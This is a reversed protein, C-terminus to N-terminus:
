MSAKQGFMGWLIIFIDIIIIIVVATELVLMRNTQIRSWSVSYISEITELKRRVTRNWEDLAFRRSATEYVRGLFLDGVLKLHSEVRDLIDAIELAVQSLRQMAGTYPFLPARPRALEDYADDLLKDMEADYIRLELLQIIAYEIVDPVDFSAEPDLIFAANWDVLTQDNVRYSLPTKLAEAQEDVSLDKEARLIRALAPGHDRLLAQGDVPRDFAQVMFIAYDEFDGDADPRPKVVAAKIDAYVKRFEAIAADRLVPNETVLGSLEGLGSLPGGLALTFRITVAGFSYVKADVIIDFERTGVTIRRKPLGFLLPPERFQIYPPRLRAFALFSKQTAQGCIEELGALKVESGVDFCYYLILQGNTILPLTGTM